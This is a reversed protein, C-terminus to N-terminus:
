VDQYRFLTMPLVDQYRFLTILLLDDYRLPSIWKFYFKTSNIFANNYSQTAQKQVPDVNMTGYTINM